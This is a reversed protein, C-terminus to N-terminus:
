ITLFEPWQSEPDSFRKHRTDRIRVREGTHGNVLEAWDHLHWHSAGRKYTESKFFVLAQAATDFSAEFDGFAGEPYYEAMGFLLYKKLKPPPEAAPQPRPEILPDKLQLDELTVADLYMPVQFDFSPDGHGPMSKHPSMVVLIQRGEHLAHFNGKLPVIENSDNVWHDYGYSGREWKVGISM